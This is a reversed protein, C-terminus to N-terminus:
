NPASAVDFKENHYVCYNQQKGTLFKSVDTTQFFNNIYDLHVNEIVDFQNM